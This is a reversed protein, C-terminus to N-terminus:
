PGGSRQVSIRAIGLSGRCEEGHESDGVNGQPWSGFASHHCLDGWAAKRTMPFRGNLAAVWYLAAVRGRLEAPYLPAKRFSLDCTRSRGPTGKALRGKAAGHTREPFLPTKTKKHTPSFTWFDERM